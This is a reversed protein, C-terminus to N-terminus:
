SRYTLLDHLDAVLFKLLEADDLNAVLPLQVAQSFAPQRVEFSKRRRSDFLEAMLWGLGFVSGVLPPVPMTVPVPPLQSSETSASM